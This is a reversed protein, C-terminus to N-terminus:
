SATGIRALDLEFGTFYERVASLLFLNRCGDQVAGFARILKRHALGQVMLIRKPM